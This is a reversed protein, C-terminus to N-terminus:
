TITAPERLDCSARHIRFLSQQLRAPSWSLAELAKAVNEDALGYYRHKGQASVKILGASMLRQLHVSATSPSVEAVVALETSTRAHADLLCYLIRTRAPEGIAAAIGAVVIGENQRAVM